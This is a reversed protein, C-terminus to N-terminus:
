LVPQQDVDVRQRVAVVRRALWAVRGDLARTRLGLPDGLSRTFNRGRSRPDGVPWTRACALTTLPPPRHKYARAGFDDDTQSVPRQNKPTPSMVNREMPRFAAM